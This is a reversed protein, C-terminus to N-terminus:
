GLAFRRQQVHDRRGGVELSQRQGLKGRQCAFDALFQDVDDSAVTAVQPCREARDLQGNGQVPDEIGGTVADDPVDPVLGVRVLQEGPAAVSERGDALLASERPEEGPVLALVIGEAGPVGRRRDGGRQAHGDRKGLASLRISSDDRDDAIAGQRTAHGEFREVVSAVEVEREEDNEVVVLHRDRRIDAGDRAIEVADAGIRAVVAGFVLQGAGDLAKGLAIQEDFEPLRQFSETLSNM